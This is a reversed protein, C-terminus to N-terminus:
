NGKFMNTSFVRNATGDFTRIKLEDMALEITNLVWAAENDDVLGMHNIRFILSKIHDQGGAINVDYKNKLIKRIAPADETYITTMANAPTSPYIKCGIAKLAKRSSSARLATKEYLADFGGNNKINSLIERLGIILTTAATWATTNKRQQKIETALNFYFGRSKKEIKAVADNSLGIVALGPPLMLAKQSGTIVADLNTTDIKEVGIATIGDAIIMIDRNLKKVEQAIQEVPHRLGGASECIQIFIADIDKDQELTYLVEEVTVAKNWENKIETYEIDFAKCIKGFREGFKGSNITLAKKHTLNTICAEMAGSGSSALMVVEDMNYLEFLLERTQAFIAEFEPTRHHITIDAMAKRVFEPVPTPGPTLLM